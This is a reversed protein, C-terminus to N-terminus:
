SHLSSFGDHFTAAKAQFKTSCSLIIICHCVGELYHSNVTNYPTTGVVHGAHIKVDSWLSHIKTKHDVM